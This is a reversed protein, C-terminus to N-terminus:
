GDGKFEPPLPGWGAWPVRANAQDLAAERRLRIRDRQESGIVAALAGLIERGDGHHESDRALTVCATALVALYDDSARSTARGLDALLTSDTTM